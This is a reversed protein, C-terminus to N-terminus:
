PFPRASSSTCAGASTVVVVAGLRTHSAHTHLDAARDETRAQPNGSLTLTSRPQITTRNPAARWAISSNNPKACAALAVVLDLDQPLM